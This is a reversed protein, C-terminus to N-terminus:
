NTEKAPRPKFELQRRQLSLKELKGNNELVVADDTIDYLKVGYSITDGIHFIKSPQNSISIYAKSAAGKDQASKVIGTVHLELSSIPVDSMAQPPQGFVHLDPLEEILAAQQNISIMALPTIAQHTLQWDSRWAAISLMLTVVVLLLMAINSGMVIQHTYQKMTM